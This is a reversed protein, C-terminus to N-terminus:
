TVSAEAVKGRSIRRTRIPLLERLRPERLHLSAWAIIGLLFPILGQIEHARVHVMVAGGLYGTTLVAGLVSTAPVLYLLVCVLEAIGIAVVFTVPMGGKAFGEVVMPQRTVKMVASMTMLLVPLAALVYGTWRKATSTAAPESARNM